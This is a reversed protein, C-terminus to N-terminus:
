RSGVKYFEIVDAPSKRRRPSPAPPPSPTRSQEFAELAAQTIRWRAKQRAATRGVNIAKLDGNRIWGLVTNATVMYRKQLDAVTFM